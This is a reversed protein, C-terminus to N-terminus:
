CKSIVGCDTRNTEMTRCLANDAGLVASFHRVYVGVCAYLIKPYLNYCTKKCIDFKDVLIDCPKNPKEGGCFKFVSLKNVNKFEDDIIM